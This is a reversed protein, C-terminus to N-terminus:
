PAAPSADPVTRTSGFCSVTPCSAFMLWALARSAMSDLFASAALCIRSAVVPDMFLVVSADDAEESSCFPPM